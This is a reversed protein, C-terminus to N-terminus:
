SVYCLVEGGIHLQRAEKDTMIGRSTSIIAIGLGNMVRPLNESDAYKRLGPTSVRQISMIAPQKTVPHYKLAIKIVGQPGEEEFKYNLIYGKEFLIQVADDFSAEETIFGQHVASLYCVQGYTVEETNLIDTVVQSSQASVVGGLLFLSFIVFFLRKM